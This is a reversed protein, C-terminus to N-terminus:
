DSSAASLGASEITLGPGFAMLMVPAGSADALVRELVLLVTGSSVNGVEKLVARAHAIGRRGNLGLGTDVADVIAAGGPHVAFHTASSAGAACALEAIGRRLAVPVERSLTMAFGQDTVTWTMADRGAPLLWPRGLEIRRSAHHSLEAAGRGGFARIAGVEGVEGVEEVALCRRMAGGVVVAAVAADGFLASAVLNQPSPDNRAHLSCLEVCVVLAAGAPDASCAGAAARLGTIAGFCGMFGLQARRVSPRLALRDVLSVDVGPAAFGTCTVVIVDTIDRRDIGSRELAARAAREALEPAHQAFRRMREATSLPMIEQPLAVAYRQDIGSGIAIRRWRELAEGRLDWLRAVSEATEGQPLLVDPFASGLALLSADTRTALPAAAAREPLVTSM